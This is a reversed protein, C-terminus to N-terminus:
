QFTITLGNTFVCSHLIYIYNLYITLILINNTLIVSFADYVYYLTQGVVTDAM